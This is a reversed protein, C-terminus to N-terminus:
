MQGGGGRPLKRILPIVFCLTSHHWSSIARSWPLQQRWNTSIFLYSTQDVCSRLLFKLKHSSFVYWMNKKQSSKVLCSLYQIYPLTTMMPPGTRFLLSTSWMESETERPKLSSCYCRYCGPAEEDEEETDTIRRSILCWPLFRLEGWVSPCM